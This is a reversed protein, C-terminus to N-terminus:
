AMHFMSMGTAVIYGGQGTRVGDKSLVLKFHSIGHIM